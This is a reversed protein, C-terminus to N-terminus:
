RPLRVYTKGGGSAALVGEKMNWYNSMVMCSGAFTTHVESQGALFRTDSSGDKTGVHAYMYPGYNGGGSVNGNYTTWLAEYMNSHGIMKDDESLEYGVRALSEMLAVSQSARYPTLIEFYPNRVGLTKSITRLRTILQFYRDKYSSYDGAGLDSQDQVSMNTGLDIVYLNPGNSEGVTGPTGIVRSLYDAIGADNLLDSAPLWDDLASGGSAMKCVELGTKLSPRWFRGSVFAVPKDAMATGSALVAVGLDKGAGNPLSALPIVHDGHWYGGANTTVTVPNPAVTGQGNRFGQVKVSAPSGAVGYGVVRCSLQDDNLSWDGGKVLGMTWYSGNFTFLSRGDAVTQGTDVVLERHSVPINKTNGVSIGGGQGGGEAEYTRVLANFKWLNTKGTWGSGSTVRNATLHFNNGYPSQTSVATGSGTFIGGQAGGSISMGKVNQPAFVYPWVASLRGGLQDDFLSDGVFCARCDGYKMLEAIANQNNLFPSKM